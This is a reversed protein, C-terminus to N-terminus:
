IAIWKGGFPISVRGRVADELTKFPVGSRYVIKGDKRFAKEWIIEFTYSSGLDYKKRKTLVQMGCKSILQTERAEQRVHYEKGQALMLEIPTLELDKDKTIM